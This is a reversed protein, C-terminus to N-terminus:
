VAIEVSTKSNVSLRVPHVVVVVFFFFYKRIDISFWIATEIHDRRSWRWRWRAMAMTSSLVVVFYVDCSSHATHIGCADLGCQFRVSCVSVLHLCISFLFSNFNRSLLMERDIFSKLTATSTAISAHAHGSCQMSHNISTEFALQLRTLSQFEM